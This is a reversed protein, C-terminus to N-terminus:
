SALEIASVPCSDVAEQVKQVKLGKFETVKVKAKGDEGLEFIEPVITVCMGCGICKNKDITIKTM